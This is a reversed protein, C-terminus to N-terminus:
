SQTHLDTGSNEEEAHSLGAKTRDPIANERIVLITACAFFVSIGIVILHRTPALTIQETGTVLALLAGCSGELRSLSQPMGLSPLRPRFSLAVSPRSILTWTLRPTPLEEESSSPSWSSPVTQIPEFGKYFM